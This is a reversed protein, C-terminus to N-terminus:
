SLFRLLSLQQIRATLAYSTEIHSLLDAVRTSAEYPDVGELDLLHREFLDAQMGIRESADAVRKEVVGTASQLNAIDSIASGVLAVARATLAQKGAPSLNSSFLDSISAAAMALRRMGQDNAGVSTETTENLAIRSVIKQDTANSWNAQWGAGLFQPEVDATLFADMQAATINAAGPASQSFGFHALFAADFAAKAPSGPGDFANIPKVDTNIGAFLHEGNVSTNLISTLAQLMGEASEATVSSAADGSASATLTSLFDQAAAALQSLSTQTASLRSSVLANSDVIGNLRELDRAFTVVQASRAGLALGTDALKGTTVEKQARALESQNRLMSYRLAQSMTSTALGPVKM